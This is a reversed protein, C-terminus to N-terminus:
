IYVFFISIDQFCFIGHAGEYFLESFYNDLFILFINLRRGVQILYFWTKSM